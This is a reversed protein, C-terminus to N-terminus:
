KEPRNAVIQAEVHLAWVTILSGCQDCFITTAYSDGHNSKSMWEPKNAYGCGPCVVTAALTLKPRAAKRHSTIDTTKASTNNTSSPSSSSSSSSSSGSSSSPSPSTNASTNAIAGEPTFDTIAYDDASTGNSSNESTSM